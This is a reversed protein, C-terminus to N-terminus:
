GATLCFLSAIRETRPGDRAGGNARELTESTMSASIKALHRSQAGTEIDSAMIQSGTLTAPFNPISNNADRKLM